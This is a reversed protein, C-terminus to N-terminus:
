ERGKDMSKLKAVVTGIKIKSELRVLFKRDDDTLWLLIDGVPKFAGDVTIEPKVVVTDFTGLDTKVKEKRLVEGTFVINKGEDAVPIRIKKGVTLQFARLYYVVSIVNQAYPILQWELKKSREGNEKTVSKKWYNAKSTKWDFFTRTEALQKSEKLTIQLSLSRMDDYSMYTVAKDEVAYIRNFFSNSKATVEFHYAKEGNVEVMPKVEMDLDGAVINFYSLSFTVKEGARYPDVIPRRGNFGESDEITPQRPGEPKVAKKEKVSKAKAVAKSKKSPKAPDPETVEEIKPEPPPEVQKIQVKEEYEDQKLVEEAKEFQLIKGACGTFLIIAITLGLARTMGRIM